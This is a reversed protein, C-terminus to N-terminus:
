RTEMLQLWPQAHSSHDLQRRAFRAGPTRCWSASQPHRQELCGGPSPGGGASTSCPSARVASTLAPAGLCRRTPSPLGGDGPGRHGLGCSCVSPRTRCSWCGWSCLRASVRSRSAPVSLSVPEATGVEGVTPHGLSGTQPPIAGEPQFSPPMVSGAGAWELCESAHSGEPRSRVGAEGGGAARGGARWTLLTRM